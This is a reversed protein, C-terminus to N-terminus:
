RKRARERRVLMIEILLLAKFLEKRDQRNLFNYRRSYHFQPYEEDDLILSGAINVPTDGIKQMTIPYVKLFTIQVWTKEIIFGLIRDSIPSKNLHVFLDGIHQVPIRQGGNGITEEDPHSTLRLKKKPTFDDGEKPVPKIVECICVTQQEFDDQCCVIDPKSSMTRGLIQAKHTVLFPGSLTMLGFAQLVKEFLVLYKLRQEMENSKTQSIISSICRNIETLKGLFWKSVLPERLIENEQSQSRLKWQFEPAFAKEVPIDELCEYSTNLDCAKLCSKVELHDEEFLTFLRWSNVIIEFIDSQKCRVGLKDTFNRNLESTSKPFESSKLSECVSTLDPSSKSM